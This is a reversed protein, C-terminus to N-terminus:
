KIVVEVRRNRPEAVEDATKVLPNGEGHSTVTINSPVAGNAILIDSLVKARDLSLKYNYEKSGVTDTDIGSGNKWAYCIVIYSVYAFM